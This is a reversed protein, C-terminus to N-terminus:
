NRQCNQYSYAKPCQQFRYLSYNLQLIPCFIEKLAKGMKESVDFNAILLMETQKLFIKLFIFFIRAKIHNRKVLHTTLLFM